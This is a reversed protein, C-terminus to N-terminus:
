DELIVWKCTGKLAYDRNNTAPDLYINFPDGLEWKYDIYGDPTMQFKRVIYGGLSTVLADAFAGQLLDEVNQEDNLREYRGNADMVLEDLDDGLPKLQGIRKALQENGIVALLKARLMNYNLLPKNHKAAATKEKETFMVNQLKRVVRESETRRDAFSDKSHDFAELVKRAREDMQQKAAM